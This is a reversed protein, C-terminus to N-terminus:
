PADKSFAHRLVQHFADPQDLMVFNQADELVVDLIGALVFDDARDYSRLESRVLTTPVTTDRLLDHVTGGMANSLAVALRRIAIPDGLRMDCRRWDQEAALVLEWGGAFIASESVAALDGPRPQMPDIAPEVLVSRRVLDPRSAALIIAISGGLSHSVLDVADGGAVAEFVRSVAEATAPLTYSFEPPRDSRGHGPLDIVIGPRGLRVATDTWSAAGHCGLGHLYFVPEGSGPVTIWRLRDGNSTFPVSDTLMWYEKSAGLSEVM